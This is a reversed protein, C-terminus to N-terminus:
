DDAKNIKTPSPRTIGQQSITDNQETIQYVGYCGENVVEFDPQIGNIYEATFGPHLDVSSSADYLVYQHTEINQTSQIYGNVEIREGITAVAPTVEDMSTKCSGHVITAQKLRYALYVWQRDVQESTYEHACPRCGYAMINYLDPFMPIGCADTVVGLATGGASECETDNYDGTCICYDDASDCWDTGYDAATSCLRDGTTACNYCSDAPDRTVNEAGAATEWTHYLGFWHGIEHAVTWGWGANTNKHVFMNNPRPDCQIACPFTSSSGSSTYFINLHGDVGYEDYVANWNATSDSSYSLNAYYESCHPNISVLNLHVNFGIDQFWGNTYNIDAEIEADTAQPILCPPVMLRHATVNIITANARSNKLDMGAQYFEEYIKQMDADSEVTPSPMDCTYSAQESGPVPDLTYVEYQAIDQSSLSSFM